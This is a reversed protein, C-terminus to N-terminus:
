KNEEAKKAEPTSKKSGASRDTSQSRSASHVMAQLKKERLLQELEEATLEKAPKNDRATKRTRPPDKRARKRKSKKSRDDSSSSSSESSSSSSEEDSPSRRRRKKKAPPKRKRRKAAHAEQLMRQDAAERAADRRFEQARNASSIKKQSLADLRVFEKKVATELEEGLINENASVTRRDAKGLFQPAEHPMASMIDGPMAGHYRRCGEQQCYAPVVAGQKCMTLKSVLYGKNGHVSTGMIFLQRRRLNDRNSKYAEETQYDWFFRFSTKFKACRYRLPAETNRAEFTAFKSEPVLPDRSGPVYDKGGPGYPQLQGGQQDAQYPVMMGGGPAQHAGGGYGGGQAQHPVVAHPGPQKLEPGLAVAPSPAMPQGYKYCDYPYARLDAQALILVEPGMGAHSNQAWSQPDSSVPASRLHAIVDVQELWPKNAHANLQNAHYCVARDVSWKTHALARLYEHGGFVSTLSFFPRAMIHPEDMPFSAADAILSQVVVKFNQEYDFNFMISLHTFCTAKGLNAIIVNTWEAIDMQLTPSDPDLHKPVHYGKCDDLCTKRAKIREKRTLESASLLWIDREPLRPGMPRGASRFATQRPMVVRNREFKVADAGEPSVPEFSPSPVDPSDPEDSAEEAPAHAASAPEASAPAAPAPPPGSPPVPPATPPPGSSPPPPMAAPVVAAAEKAEEAHAPPEAKQEAPEPPPATSPAKADSPNGQPNM